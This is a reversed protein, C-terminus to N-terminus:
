KGTCQEFPADTVEGGDVHRSLRRRLYLLSAAQCPRVSLKCHRRQCGSVKSCLKCGSPILEINPKPSPPFGSFRFFFGRLLSAFWCLSLGSIADPGPISGLGCQNSALARVVAGDRGGWVPYTIKWFVKLTGPLHSLIINKEFSFMKGRSFSNKM